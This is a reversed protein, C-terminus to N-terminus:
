KLFLCVRVEREDVCYSLFIQDRLFFKDALFSVSMYIYIHIYMYVYICVCLYIFDLLFLVMTNCMWKWNQSFDECLPLCGVSILQNLRLALSQVILLHM